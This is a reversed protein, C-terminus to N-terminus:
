VSGAQLEIQLHHSGQSTPEWLTEVEFESPAVLCERQRAKTEQFVDVIPTM